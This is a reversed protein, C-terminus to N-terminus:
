YSTEEVRTRKLVKRDKKIGKKSQYKMKDQETM